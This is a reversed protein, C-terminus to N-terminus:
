KMYKEMYDKIIKDPNIKSIGSALIANAKKNPFNNNIALLLNKSDIVKSNAQVQAAIDKADNKLFYSLNNLDIFAGDIRGGAVKKINTLDDVVVNGKIAGSKVLAMFEPTNGYDQM